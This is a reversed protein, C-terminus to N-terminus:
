FGIRLSAAAAHAGVSPVLAVRPSRREKVGVALVAAGAIAAAAGVGVLALGVPYDTKMADQTAPDFVYGAPPNQLTDYAGHGVVTLAIGTALLAVGTAGVVAGAITKTRGEGSPAVFPPPTTPAAVPAPAPVTPPAPAMPPPAKEVPAPTPAPPAALRKELEAIRADVGQRAATEPAHRRFAKYAGLAKAPENGFRYCQAIDFLFAPDPMAEYALEYEHAAELYRQLDYLTGARDFHRKAADTDDARAASPLAFLFLIAWISLIVRV